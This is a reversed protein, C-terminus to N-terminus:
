GRGLWVSRRSVQSDRYYWRLRQFWQQRLRLPRGCHSQAVDRRRFHRLLRRQQDGRNRDVGPAAFWFLPPNFPFPNKIRSSSWRSSHRISM